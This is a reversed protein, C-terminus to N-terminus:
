LFFLYIFFFMKRAMNHDNNLFQSTLFISRPVADITNGSQIFCPILSQSFGLSLSDLFPTAGSRDVHLDGPVHSIM